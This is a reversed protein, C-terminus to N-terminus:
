RGSHTGSGAGASGGCTQPARMEVVEGVRPIWAASAQSAPRLAGADVAILLPPAHGAIDVLVYRADSAIAVSAITAGVYTCQTGGVLAAISPAESVDVEVAAGEAWGL